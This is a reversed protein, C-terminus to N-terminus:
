GKLFGELMEPIKLIKQRTLSVDYGTNGRRDVRGDHYLTGHSKCYSWQTVSYLSREKSEKYNVMREEKQTRSLAGREASYCLQTIYIKILKLIFLFIEVLTQM